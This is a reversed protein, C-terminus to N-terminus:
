RTGSSLTDCLKPLATRDKGRATTLLVSGVGSLTPIRIESSVSAREGLAIVLPWVEKGCLGLSAEEEDFRGDSSM